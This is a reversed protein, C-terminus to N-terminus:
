RFHSNFYNSIPDPLWEIWGRAKEFTATNIRTKQHIGMLELWSKFAADSPRHIDSATQPPHFADSPKFSPQTDTPSNLSDPTLPMDDPTENPGQQPNSTESLTRKREEAAKHQLEMFGLRQSLLDSPPCSERSQVQNSIAKEVYQPNFMTQAQCSSSPGGRTFDILRQDTDGLM